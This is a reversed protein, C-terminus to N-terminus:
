LWCFKRHYELYEHHNPALNVKMSPEIGLREPYELRPSIMLGGNSDFSIYGRDFTKDLNPSLLFGNYYDIREENTSESWPKIHSAILLKTNTAGTVACQGGWFRILNRRYIDQGIRSKVSVTKETQLLEPLEIMKAKASNELGVDQLFNGYATLSARYIRNSDVDLSELEQTQRLRIEIDSFQGTDRVSLLSSSYIGTKEAIESLRRELIEPYVSTASAAEDSSLLWYEFASRNDSSDVKSPLNTLLVDNLLARTNPNIFLEFLEDDLYAYETEKLIKGKEDGPKTGSYTAGSVTKLHWFGDTLLHFFPNVPTKNDKEGALRAFWYGFQDRLASNKNINDIRNATIVKSAILDSVALMMCIKHPKPTARSGGTRLSGLKTLYENLM